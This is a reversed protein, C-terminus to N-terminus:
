KRLEPIIKDGDIKVQFDFLMRSEIIFSSCDYGSELFAKKLAILYYMRASIWVKKPQESNYCEVLKEISYGSFRERFEKYLENEINDEDSISIMSGMYESLLVLTIYITNLRRLREVIILRFYYNWFFLIVGNM